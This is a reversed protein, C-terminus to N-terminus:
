WGTASRQSVSCKYTFIKEHPEGEDGIVDYVPSPLRKTSCLTQLEGIPNAGSVDEDHNTRFYKKAIIPYMLQGIVQIREVNNLWLNSSDTSPAMQADNAFSM